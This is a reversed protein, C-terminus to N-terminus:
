IVNRNKTELAYQPFFFLFVEYLFIDVNNDVCLITVRYTKQTKTKTKKKKTQKLQEKLAPSTAWHILASVSQEKLPGSNL